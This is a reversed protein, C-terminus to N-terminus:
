KGIIQSLMEDAGIFPHLKGNEIESRLQDYSKKWDPKQHIINKLGNSISQDFWYVSQDKRKAQYSNNSKWEQLDTKIKDWIEKVGTNQLASMSRVTVSRGYKNQQLYHVANELQKVAQKAAYANEGEAKNVLILDAMEMIGRKIGQLEDGAGPILLLLFIDTLYHLEIESQGVGVTEVMIINFGAAECLIMSEKTARAVGGLNGSTPTPRIFVDPHKSLDEMRTKDGLISGKSLSSSPDIALIALKNKESIITKGISEIFTSKGAGPIGTIGIRISNGSLPLCLKLLENAKEKHEPLESELLTIGKSLSAVDGNKIGGFLDTVDVTALNKKSFNPNLHQDPESM